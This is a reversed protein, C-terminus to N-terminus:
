CDELKRLYSIFKAVGVDGYKPDSRVWRLHNFVVEPREQMFVQNWLYRM